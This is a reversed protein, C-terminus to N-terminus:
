FADTARFHEEDITSYIHGEGCMWELINQFEVQSMRDKLTAYMDQKSIGQELTSAHILNFVMKQRPNLGHVSTNDNGEVMSNAPLGRTFGTTNAVEVKEKKSDAEMKVKNYICHLYHFTISNVDTIPIIKFIMLVKNGKNTKINGNIQVYDNVNLKPMSKDDEEMSEQDLWLVATMRGTIDQITYTVKTSQIRINRIRAVVSIIQIETGWIKVGDDGCHLAQRIVIPATRSARRTTKQPQNPTNANEFQNTSNLFGGGMASQDNWM